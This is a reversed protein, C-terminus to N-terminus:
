SRSCRNPNNANGKIDPTFVIRHQSAQTELLFNRCRVSTPYTAKEDGCSRAISADIVLNKGMRPTVVIAVGYNQKPLASIYLVTGKHIDWRFTTHLYRLGLDMFVKFERGDLPCKRDISLMQQGSTFHVNPGDLLLAGPDYSAELTQKMMLLPQM